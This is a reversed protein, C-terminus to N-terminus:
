PDAHNIYDSPDTAENATWSFSFACSPAGKYTTTGTEGKNNMGSTSAVYCNTWQLYKTTGYQIKFIGTTKSEYATLIETTDDDGKLYGEVEIVPQPKFDDMIVQPVLSSGVYQFKRPLELPLPIKTWNTGVLAAGNFTVTCNSSLITANESGDWIAYGGDIGAADFAGDDLGDDIDPAQAADASDQFKIRVKEKIPQGQEIIFEYKTIYGGKYTRDFDESGSVNELHFQVWISKRHTTATFGGTIADGTGTWAATVTNYQTAALLLFPSNYEMELEMEEIQKEMTTESVHTLSSPAHTVKTTYEEKPVNFSVIKNFPLHKGNIGGGETAEFGWFFYSGAPILLDTM